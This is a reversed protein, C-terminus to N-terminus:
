YTFIPSRSQVDNSTAKAVDLWTCLVHISFKNISLHDEFTLDHFAEIEAM